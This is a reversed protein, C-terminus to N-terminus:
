VFMTRFTSRTLDQITGKIHSSHAIRRISKIGIAIGTTPCHRIDIKITTHIIICQHGSRIRWPRIEQFPIWISSWPLCCLIIYMDGGCATTTHLCSLPLDRMMYTNEDIEHDIWGKHVYLEGKRGNSYWCGAAVRSWTMRWGSAEGSWLAALTPKLSSTLLYPRVYPCHTYPMKTM